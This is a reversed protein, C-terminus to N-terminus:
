IKYDFYLYPYKEVLNKLPEPSIEAFDIFEYEHEQGKRGYIDLGNIICNKVYDASFANAKPETISNMKLLIKEVGGLYSFHWGSKRIRPFKDRRNRIKQPSSFNKAKTIVTGNWSGKSRCNVFYYFLTQELALSTKDLLNMGHQGFLSNPFMKLVQVFDLMVRNRTKFLVSCKSNNLLDLVNPNPIEDIDSILIIDEPEVNQLGRAICNRHHIEPKWKDNPDNPDYEPMDEVKIHIIKPLYDQFKSKNKEFYFEKDENKHTKNAEVLVFYDVIKDLLNLRLELLEFENFFIFCDYVKM